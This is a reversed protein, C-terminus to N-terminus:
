CVVALVDRAAFEGAEEVAQAEHLLLPLRLHVAASGDAKVIWQFQAFGVGAVMEAVLLIRWKAGVFDVIKAFPEICPEAVSLSWFFPSIALRGSAKM